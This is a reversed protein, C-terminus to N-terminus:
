EGKSFQITLAEQLWEFMSYSAWTHQRHGLPDWMQSCTGQLCLTPRAAHGLLAVVRCLTFRPCLTGGLGMGPWLRVGLNIGPLLSLSAGSSHSWPAWSVCSNHGPALVHHPIDCIIASAMEWACWGSTVM